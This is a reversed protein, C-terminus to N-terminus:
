LGSQGNPIYRSMVRLSEDLDAQGLVELTVIRQEGGNHLFAMLTELIHLDLCALSCHDKGDMIGHLHMVRIRSGYRDLFDDPDHGYIVLHGV